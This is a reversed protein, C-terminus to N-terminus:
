GFEHAKELLWARDALLKKGEIRAVLRTSRAKDKTPAQTLQMLINLFNIDMTRLNAAITKAATRVIFKRFADMKYSLLDSHLEYYIKLELRRVMHHYHSSSPAEPIYDLAEEFRGEAFLCHAMNFHYFFRGEDGGIIKQKYEETFARAWDFDRARTAVQVMNVYVQRSIDGNVFFYGRPLNDKHIEHLLPIFELNGANILMTCASRLYAYMQSLTQFTLDNEHNRLLDIMEQFEGITSFDKKLIEHVKKSIQLLISEKQYFDIEVEALELDFLHAGKQQLLYRNELETRYNYYYLDLHYILNPIQVDGNFQNQVSEWEHEEEAILLNIRYEELSETKDRERKSKLRNTVKLSPDLLGNIRLWKAWDIQQHEENSESLYLQVLAFSRLLKNLDSVVKELRGPILDSAGFVQFYVREKSLLVESFDPAAELIVEYLRVIETANKGRNFLSSALFLSMEQRKSPQLAKIAELLYTHTM